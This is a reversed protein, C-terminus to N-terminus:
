ETMKKLQAAQESLNKTSNIVHLSEVQKRKNAQYLIEEHAAKSAAEVKQAESMQRYGEIDSRALRTRSQVIAQEVMESEKTTLMRGIKQSVAAICDSRLAM